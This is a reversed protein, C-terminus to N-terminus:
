AMDKEQATSITALKGLSVESAAKLKDEGNMSLKLWDERKELTIGLYRKFMGM